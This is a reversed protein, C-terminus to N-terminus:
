GRISKQFAIAASAIEEASPPIPPVWNWDMNFEVYDFKVPAECTDVAFRGPQNLPINSAAKSMLESLSGAILHREFDPGVQIIQGVDGGKPPAVDVAFGNCADAAAFGFWTPKWDVPAIPDDPRLGWPEFTDEEEHMSLRERHEALAEADDRRM